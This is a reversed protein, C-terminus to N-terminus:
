IPNTSMEEMNREVSRIGRVSPNVRICNMGCDTARMLTAIHPDLVPTLARIESREDVSAVSAM